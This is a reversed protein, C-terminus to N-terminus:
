DGTVSVPILTGDMKLIVCFHYKYPATYDLQEAEPFFVACYKKSNAMIYYIFSKDNLRTKDNLLIMRQELAISRLTEEGIEIMTEDDSSWQSPWFYDYFEIRMGFKEITLVNWSVPDEISPESTCGIFAFLLLGLIVKAM